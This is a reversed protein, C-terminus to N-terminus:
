VSDFGPPLSLRPHSLSYFVYYFVTIYNYIKQLVKDSFFLNYIFSVGLHFVWRHSTNIEIAAPCAPLIIM